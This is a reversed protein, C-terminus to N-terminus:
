KISSSVFGTKPLKAVSIHIEMGDLTAFHYRLLLRSPRFSLASGLILGIALKEASEDVTFILKV